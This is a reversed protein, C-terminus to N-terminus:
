PCGGSVLNALDFVDSLDVSGDGNIDPSSPPFSQSGTSVDNALDFVDSLDASGDQNYDAPCTYLAVGGSIALAFGQTGTNVATGEVRVTWRGPAPASILVQELNNISDRSGGPASVGSAFNNGYYATGAPDIVVLDLDNVPAFSANVQAPADHYALTVKFSQGPTVDVLTDHSGGTPLAGPQNNHQDVVVLRRTDGAFYLSNDALIRGWGERLSPFGPEGTMDVAGNVVVAKVLAGTPAFADSPTAVGSPYFGETFYQRSLLAIGSVGPTAMSTGSNIASSCGTAGTASVLSCGPSTVEPKRRGDITPGAGPGGGTLNCISAQGPNNLSVSVALCNKANEPNRVSPGDSVAFVILQDDYQWQFDDIARAGGDYTNISDAGWSNTHVFAGQDRHLAFRSFMSAESMAPWQNYALRAGYAVGRLNGTTGDDGVATCAVHTGHSDYWPTVNYAAIKRHLASVTLPDPVPNVPDVFSCHQVAIGGDIIGMIHGVGTLGHDYLPTVNLVNSQVVWRLTANSRAAYEPQREVFQVGDIAALARIGQVDTTVAVALSAGGRDVSRVVVGKVGSIARLSAAEQEGEFMWVIAAELGKGALARREDTTWKGPTGIVPDVKWANQYAGAWSVFGLGALRAPTTKSLDAIWADSPLYGHLVVGAGALAGRRADTMPANLVIVHRYSRGFAGQGLESALGRTDVDGTRLNIVGPRATVPAGRDAGFAAGAMGCLVILSLVFNSRMRSIM